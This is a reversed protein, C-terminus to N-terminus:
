GKALRKALRDWLARYGETAPSEPAFTAIPKRHEGMREMNVTAPVVVPLIEKRQRPLEDVARRHALKRRDVMSLFARVPPADDEEEVLALVQDLSRLVLPAPVLPVVVLDAARLAARALVSSTPPCDLVVVDYHAALPSLVDSLRRRSRKLQDLVLDLDRYTEDAPLVDLREWATRRVAGAVRTDGRVLSEAGGRLRPKVDLLFTAGGQPDLDWLLTTGTRAASEYALNVASSTKGVGGKVSFLAVVKM